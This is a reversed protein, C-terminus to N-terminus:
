GGEVIRVSQGTRLRENGRVVVRDAAEIGELVEIQTGGGGLKVPRELATPGNPGDRLVFV